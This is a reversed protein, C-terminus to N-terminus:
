LFSSHPNLVIPNTCEFDQSPDIFRTRPSIVEREIGKFLMPLLHLILLYENFLYCWLNSLQNISSRLLFIDVLHFIGINEKFIDVKLGESTKTTRNSAAKAEAAMFAEKLVSYDPLPEDETLDTIYLSM